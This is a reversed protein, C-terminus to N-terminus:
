CFQGVSRAIAPLPVTKFAPHHHAPDIAEDFRSVFVRRSAIHSWSRLELFRPLSWRQTQSGLADVSVPSANRLCSLTRCGTSMGAGVIQLLSWVTKDRCFSVVSGSFMVAALVSVVLGVLLVTNMTNRDPTPDDLLSIIEELNWVHDTVGAKTAPM